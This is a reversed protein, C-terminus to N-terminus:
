KNKIQSWFFVIRLTWQVTLLQPWYNYIAHWFQLWNRYLIFLQWCYNQWALRIKCHYPLSQYTSEIFSKMNYIWQNHCAFPVQNLLVLFALGHQCVFILSRARNTSYAYWTGPLILVLNLGGCLTVPSESQSPHPYPTIANFGCHHPSFTKQLM